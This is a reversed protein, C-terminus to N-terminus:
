KKTHERVWEASIKGRAEAAADCAKSAVDPDEDLDLIHRAAEFCKLMVDHDYKRDYDRQLELASNLLELDMATRLEAPTKALLKM